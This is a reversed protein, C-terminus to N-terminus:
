HVLLFSKICACLHSGKMCLIRTFHHNMNNEMLKLSEKLDLLQLFLTPFFKSNELINKQQFHRKPIHKNNRKCLYIQNLAMFFCKKAIAFTKKHLYNTAVTINQHNMNNEMLKLSEKLDLLQLFLTPFFKSNELINKQQFHRKPIHKNNRKCLYIQNLAM